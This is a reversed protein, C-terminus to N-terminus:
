KKQKFEKDCYTCKYPKEGTHVLIHKRLYIKLSSAKDCYTCKYQKDGTHTLM